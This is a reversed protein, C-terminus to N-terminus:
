KPLPKIITEVGNINYFYIHAHMTKKRIIDKLDQENIKWIQFPRGGGNEFVIFNTLKEQLIDFIYNFDKVQFRGGSCLTQEPELLFEQIHEKITM